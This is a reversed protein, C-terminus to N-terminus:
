YQNLLLCLNRFWQLTTSKFGFDPHLRIEPHHILGEGYQVGIGTGDLIVSEGPYNIITIYAGSTNRRNILNVRENYTGGRIYITSGPVASNAAKQITKWPLSITGPNQDSGTPSVYYAPPGGVFPLFTTFPNPPGVIDSAALVIQNTSGFLSFLLVLIITGKALQWLSIKYHISLSLLKM